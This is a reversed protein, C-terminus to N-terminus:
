VSNCACINTGTNRFRIQKVRRSNEFLGSEAGSGFFVTNQKTGICIHIYFINKNFCTLDYFFNYNFWTLIMVTLAPAPWCFLDLLPDPATQGSGLASGSRCCQNTKVTYRTFIFMKKCACFFTLSLKLFANSKTHIKHM